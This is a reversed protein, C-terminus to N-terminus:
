EPDGRGKVKNYLEETERALAGFEACDVLCYNAASDWDWESSMAEGTFTKWKHLLAKMAKVNEIYEAFDHGPVKDM